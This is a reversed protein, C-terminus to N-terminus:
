LSNEPLQRANLTMKLVVKEFQIERHRFFTKRRDFRRLFTFNQVTIFYQKKLNKSREMHCFVELLILGQKRFFFGPM